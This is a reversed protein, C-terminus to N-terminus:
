GRHGTEDVVDESPTLQALIVSIRRRLFDEIAFQAEELTDNAGIIGGNIRRLFKPPPAEAGEPLKIFKTPDLKIAECQYDGTAAM